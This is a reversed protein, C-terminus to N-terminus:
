DQADGPEWGDAKAEAMVRDLRRVIPNSGSSEGARRKGREPKIVTQPFNARCETLLKALPGLQRKQSVRATIWGSKGWTGFNMPEVWAYREIVDASRERPLKFVVSVAKEDKTLSVFTLLKPKKLSGNVGPLKYARGGWQVTSFVGPFANLITGVEGMLEPIRKAM